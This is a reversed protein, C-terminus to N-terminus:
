SVIIKSYYAKTRLRSKRMQSIFGITRGLDRNAAIVGTMFTISVAGM